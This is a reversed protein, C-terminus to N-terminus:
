GTPGSAAKPAVRSANRVLALKQASELEIPDHACFVTVDKGHDRKLARLKRRNRARAVGDFEESAQFMEIFAPARDLEVDMEGEHFYADGAHLLWGGDAKVAVGSHGRTHGVLPIMLIEPPLGQLDRVAEFGHWAEGRATYTRWKPKHAWQIAKYRNKEIYGVPSGAARQEPEHLHVVAEPFDAIGGAHDPDLHTLVIHRVDAPAFGLKRVQVLASEATDNRPGVLYKFQMGLRGPQAMDRVGLGTDVLVLGAATEVLLVHCVMHGHQNILQRAFPPCLTSCNLHHVRLDSV